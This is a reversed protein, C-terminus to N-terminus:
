VLDATVSVAFAQLRVIKYCGEQPIAEGEELLM